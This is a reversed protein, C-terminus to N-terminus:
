DVEENKLQSDAIQRYTECDRMLEEHRGMGVIRGNEMVMIQDADMVTSIRQAVIIVATQRTIPKLADRLARDTAFDLASFSDDFTFIKPDRMIARAICLRQRQGGSFNTGGQAVPADLGGSEGRIFGDSQAIELAKWMKAEDANRDGFKLNSAVTGTFLLPRRRCPASCRPWSTRITNACTM